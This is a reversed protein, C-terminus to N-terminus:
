AAESEVKARKPRTANWIAVAAHYLAAAEKSAETLLRQRRAHTEDIKGAPLRAMDHQLEAQVELRELHSLPVCKAESAAALALEQGASTHPYVAFLRGLRTRGYRAGQDGYFAVLVQASEPSVEAVKGLRRSVIAFRTLTYDDPVYGESERQLGKPRATLEHRSNRTRIPTHGTGKCRDCWGGYESRTERGAADHGIGGIELIGSGGCKACQASTFADRQLRELMAGCTSRQFASQGRSLYWELSAEDGLNMTALRDTKTKDM